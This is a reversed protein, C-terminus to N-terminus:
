SLSLDLLNEIEKIECFESHTIRMSNGCCAYVKHGDINSILEPLNSIKIHIKELLLICEEHTLDKYEM